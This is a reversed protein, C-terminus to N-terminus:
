LSHAVSHDVMWLEKFSSKKRLHMLFTKKIQNGFFINIIWIIMYLSKIKESLGVFYSRFGVHIHTHIHIHTHTVVYMYEVYMYIGSM